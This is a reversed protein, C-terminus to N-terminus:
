RTSVAVISYTVGILVGLVSGAVVQAPTHYGLRVRSWSVAVPVVVAMLGIPFATIAVAVGVFTAMAAHASIKWVKTVIGVILVGAFVAAEAALVRWAALLAAVIGALVLAFMMLAIFPGRRDRERVHRDTSGRRHVVELAVGPIGAALVACIIGAWFAGENLGIAIIFGATLVIPSFAETLIRAIKEVSSVKSSDKMRSSSHPLM